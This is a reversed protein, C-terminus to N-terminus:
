TEIGHQKGYDDGYDDSEQGLAAIADLAKRSDECRNGRILRHLYQLLNRKGTHGQTWPDRHM